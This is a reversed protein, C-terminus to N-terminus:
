EEPEQEELWEAYDMAREFRELDDARRGDVAEFTRLDNFETLPIDPM